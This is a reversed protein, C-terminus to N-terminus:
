RMGRAARRDPPELRPDAADSLKLRMLKSALQLPFWDEIGALDIGTLEEIRALRQRLTNRHVILRQAALSANGRCELYCDLTELLRSGRKLDYEVLASIKTMALDRGVSPDTSIRYLYVYPGLEDFAIVRGEGWLSSGIELAERAERYADAYDNPDSGVTSLGVSMLVRLRDEMHSRAEELRRHLTEAADNGCLRVLAVVRGEAGHVISGPNSGSILRALNAAGRNIREALDDQREDGEIALMRAKIVVHPQSLDCGLAAALSSVQANWTGTILLRHLRWAPSHELVEDTLRRVKVTLAVRDAITALLRQEEALYRGPRYCNILGIQESGAVLPASALEKIRSPPCLALEELVGALASNGGDGGGAMGPVRKEIADQAAAKREGSASSASGRMALRAETPEFLVILCLEAGLTDLTMAIVNDVIERLPQSSSLATMMEGLFALAKAQRADQDRLHAREIAGALLQAVEIATRMHEGEFHGSRMSYLTFAGVVTDERVLIPTTLMARFREEKLEPYFSFRPDEIPSSNIVTPERAEAAWGTVGEGLRLRITGLFPRQDGETAARLVLREDQGEWMYVFGADSGTAGAVVTVVRDLLDELGLDLGLALIVDELVERRRESQALRRRLDDVQVPAKGDGSAARPREVSV